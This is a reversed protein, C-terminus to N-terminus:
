GQTAASLKRFLKAEYYTGEGVQVALSKSHHGYAVVFASNPDDYTFLGLLALRDMVVEIDAESSSGGIESAEHKGMPLRFLVQLVPWDSPELKRIVDILVRDPEPRKPDVSNKIYAAWVGQLTEDSELEIADILPLSMRESLPRTTGTMGADDIAKQTKALVKLRNRARFGAMSDAWAGGLQRAGEGFVGDLWGGAKETTELGKQGLKALEEIDKSM